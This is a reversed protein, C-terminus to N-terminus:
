FSFHSTTDVYSKTKMNNKPTELPIQIRGLRMFGEQGAQFSPHGPGLLCFFGLMYKSLKTNDIADGLPNSGRSGAHFAVIRM